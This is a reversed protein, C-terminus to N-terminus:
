VAAQRLVVGAVAATKNEVAAAERVGAAFFAKLGEGPFIRRDDVIEILLLAHALEEGARDRQHICAHARILTAAELVQHHGETTGAALMAGDIQRLPQRIMQAGLTSHFHHHMMALLLVQVWSPVSDMFAMIRAAPRPVRKRGSVSSRGLASTSILPRVSSSIASVRKHASPISSTM